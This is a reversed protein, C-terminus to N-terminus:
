EMGDLPPVVKGLLESARRHVAREADLEAIRRKAAYLEDKKGSALGPALGRDIRDQRHCTYISEESIGLDPTVGRSLL